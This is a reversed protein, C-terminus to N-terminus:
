PVQIAVPRFGLADSARTPCLWGRDTSCCNEADNWYSGGRYVRSSGASPGTPDAGGRLHEAYWDNTWEWVLGHMDYLG